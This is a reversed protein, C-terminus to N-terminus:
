TFHRVDINFFKQFYKTLIKIRISNIFNCQKNTCIEFCTLQDFLGNTLINFRILLKSNSKEHYLIGTHHGYICIKIPFALMVHKTFLVIKMITSISMVKPNDYANFKEMLDYEIKVIKMLVKMLRTLKPVISLPPMAHITNLHNFDFTNEIIEQPHAKIPIFYTIIQVLNENLNIKEYYGDM